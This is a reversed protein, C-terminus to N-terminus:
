AIELLLNEHKNKQQILQLAMDDRQNLSKQLDICMKLNDTELDMKENEFM